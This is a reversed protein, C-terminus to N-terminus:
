LRSQRVADFTDWINRPHPVADFTICELTLGGGGREGGTRVLGLGQGQGEQRRLRLVAGLNKGVDCYKPASFVTICRGDHDLRVGRQCCQHSRVILQLGNRDLFRATAKPGWSYGWPLGRQPNRRFDGLGMEEQKDEKEEEEEEEEEKEKPDFPDCWMLEGLAVTSVSQTTFPEHFRAVRQLDELSMESTEPGIGGHTVFLGGYGPERGVVACVPLAQFVQRFLDLIGQDYKERVQTAFGGYENMSACEHNGRLLHVADPSAVKLALLAFAVEFSYVGRDVMDGNFVFVSEGAKPPGAVGESFINLLDFFQGHTDGCINVQGGNVPPVAINILSPLAQHLELARTLVEEVYSRPYNWL